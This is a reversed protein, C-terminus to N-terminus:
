LYFLLNNLQKKKLKEELVLFCSIVSSFEVSFNVSLSRSLLSFKLLPPYFDDMETNLPSNSSSDAFLQLHKCCVMCGTVSRSKSQTLIKINSNVTNSRHTQWFLLVWSEDRAAMRKMKNERKDKGAEKWGQLSLSLSLFSMREGGGEVFTPVVVASTADASFRCSGKAM